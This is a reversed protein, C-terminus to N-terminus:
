YGCKLLEPNLRNVVLRDRKELMAPLLYRLNQDHLKREFDRQSQEQLKEVDVETLQERKLQNKSLLAVRKSIIAETIDDVNEDTAGLNTKLFDQFQEKSLSMLSKDKAIDTILKEKQEVWSPGKLINALKKAREEEVQEKTPKRPKQPKPPKQPEQSEGPEEVKTPQTVDDIAAKVSKILREDKGDDSSEYIENENIIPVVDGSEIDSKKPADVPEFLILKHTKNRADLINKAVEKWGEVTNTEDLSKFTKDKVTKSLDYKKTNSLKTSVLTELKPYNNIVSTDLVPISLKLIKAMAIRVLKGVEEATLRRRWKTMKLIDSFKEQTEM